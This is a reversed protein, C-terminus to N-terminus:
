IAMIIQTIDALASKHGSNKVDLTQLNKIADLYSKRSKKFEGMERYVSGLETLAECYGLLDHMEERSVLVARYKEEAKGFRSTQEYIDGLNQNIRARATVLCTKILLDADLEFESLRIM